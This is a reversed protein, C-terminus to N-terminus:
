TVHICCSPTLGVNMIFAVSPGGAGWGVGGRGCVERVEEVSARERSVEMIRKPDSLVDPDGLRETLEKYTREIGGLQEVM